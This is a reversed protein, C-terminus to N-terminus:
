WSCKEYKESASSGPSRRRAPARARRRRPAASGRHSAARRGGARRPPRRATAATASAGRARPRAPSARGPSTRASRRLRARTSARAGRAARDAKPALALLDDAVARGPLAVRQEVVAADARVEEVVRDVPVRVLLALVRRPRVDRDVRRLPDGLRPRVHDHDQRPVEGALDRRLERVRRSHPARSTTGSGSAGRTSRAPRRKGDLASGLATFTTMKQPPSPTRM